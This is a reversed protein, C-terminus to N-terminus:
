GEPYGGAEFFRTLAKEDNPNGRLTALAKKTGAGNRAPPPAGGGRATRPLVPRPRSGNAPQGNLTPATGNKRSAAIMEQHKQVACALWYRWDPITRLQPPLAKELNGFAVHLEHEPQTIWPFLQDTREDSAKQEQLYKARLPAAELKTQYSNRTNRLVKGMRAASYDEQGGDGIFLKAIEPNSASMARLQQEVEQPSDQLTELLEVVMGHGTHAATFETKLTEIDNVNIFPNDATPVLVAAPKAALQRKLGENETQLKHVRDKIRAELDEQSYVKAKAAETQEFAAQAEVTRGAEEARQALAEDAAAQANLWDTQEQTFSPAQAEVTAIEEETKAENRLKFWAQQDANWEPEKVATSGPAPPGGPATLSITKAPDASASGPAPVAPAPTGAPSGPKPQAAPDELIKEFAHQIAAEGTLV